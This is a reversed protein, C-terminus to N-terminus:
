RPKAKAAEARDKDKEAREQKPTEVKDIVILGSTSDVQIERIVAGTSLDFSWVRKGGEDELESSLIKAGPVRALATKKARAKSIKPPAGAASAGVALALVALALKM